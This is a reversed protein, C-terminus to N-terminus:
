SGSSSLFFCGMVFRMVYLSCQSHVSPGVPYEIGAASFPHFVNMLFITSSAIGFPLLYDHILLLGFLPTNTNVVDWM